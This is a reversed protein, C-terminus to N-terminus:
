KKEIQGLEELNTSSKLTRIFNLIQTYSHLKLAAVRRLILLVPTQAVPSYSHLKLAAV